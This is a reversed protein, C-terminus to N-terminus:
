GLPPATLLGLLLGLLLAGALALPLWRLSSRKPAPKPQAPLRITYVPGGQPNVGSQVVSVERGDAGNPDPAAATPQAAPASGPKRRSYEYIRGREDVPPQFPGGPTTFGEKGGAPWDKVNM